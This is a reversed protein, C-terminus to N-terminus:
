PREIGFAQLRTVDQSSTLDTRKGPNRETEALLEGLNREARLKLEAAHSDRILPFLKRHNATTCGGVSPFRWVGAGFFLVGLFRM